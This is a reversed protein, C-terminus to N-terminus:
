TSTRSCPCAKGIRGLGKKSSQALSSSRRGLGKSMVRSLIAGVPKDRRRLGKERPREFSVCLRKTPFYFLLISHAQSM